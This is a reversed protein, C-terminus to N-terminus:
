RKLKSTVKCEEIFNVLQSPDTGTRRELTEIFVSKYETM